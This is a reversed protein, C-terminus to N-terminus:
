RPARRAPTEYRRKAFARAFPVLSAPGELHFVEFGISALRDLSAAHQARPCRDLVATAGGGAAAVADRAIEWGNPTQQLMLFWDSDSILLVHAPRTRAAKADLFADKLRLVGFSYGTGLYSTLVTLAKREERVFGDTSAFRGPEGSLTVAVHAGARLASLVLIAGAIVPPSTVVRPNPMSGSCDIGVFLDEVERRPSAGRDLGELREVLTVGPIPIPSRELSARWDVASVPSGPDWTDLGEPVPDGAAELERVPYRILHPVALERYYRAFIADEPLRVGLSAALDRYAGPARVSKQGGAGREAGSGAEVGAPRPRGTIRDDDAPHIAGAAEDPDLDTLGDPLDEGAGAQTTDLWPGFAPADKSPEPLYSLLLVAFRGAGRLWERAYTRVVRAGLWADAELEPDDPGEVLDGKRLGWLREYVRLYLTWLRDAPGPTKLRRYVGAMDLGAVRQLRDNLLLDAYLNAVMPAQGEHGPLGARVRALLRAQDALDGPVFVHHGVEHALVERAFGELGRERVQRLSVVIAHDVLRIMAFSGELGERHEASASLCWRPESLRTFRSWAALASPLAARWREVLAADAASMPSM